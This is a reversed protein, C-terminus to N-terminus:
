LFKLSMEHWHREVLLFRPFKQQIFGAESSVFVERFFAMNLNVLHISGRELWWWLSLYIDNREEM